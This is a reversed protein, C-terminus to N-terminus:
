ASTRFNRPEGLLIQDKGIAQVTERRILAVM